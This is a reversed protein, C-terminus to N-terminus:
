KQLSEHSVRSIKFKEYIFLLFISAFIYMIPAVTLSYRYHSSPSLLGVFYGFVMLLFLTKWVHKKRFGILVGPWMLLFLLILLGYLYAMAIAFSPEEALLAFYSKFTEQINLSKSAADFRKLHDNAELEAIKEKDFLYFPKTAFFFLHPTHKVVTTIYDVPNEKIIKIAENKWCKAQVMENDNKCKDMYPQLMPYVVHYGEETDLRVGHQDAFMHAVNYDLLTYVQTNIQIVGWISYNRYFWPGMIVAHILVFLLAAKVYDYFKLRSIIFFVLLFLLVPLWLMHAIPKTMSAIALFLSALAIYKFQAPEKLYKILYLLFLTTLVPLVSDPYAYNNAVHIWSINISALFASLMGVREGFHAGVLYVLYVLFINSLINIVRLMEYVSEDSDFIMYGLASILPYVPIKFSDPIFHANEDTRGDTYVGYELLSKGVQLNRLDKNPGVGYDPSITYINLSILIGLIISILMSVKLFHNRM